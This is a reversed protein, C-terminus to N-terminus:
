MVKRLGQKRTRSTSNHNFSNFCLMDVFCLVDHPACVTLEVLGLGCGVCNVVEVVETDSDMKYEQVLIGCVPDIRIVLFGNTM